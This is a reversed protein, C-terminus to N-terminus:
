SMGFSKFFIILCKLRKTIIISAESFINKRKHKLLMNFNSKNVAKTM